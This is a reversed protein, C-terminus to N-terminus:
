SQHHRPRTASGKTQLRSGWRWICIVSKRVKTGPGKSQQGDDKAKGKGKSKKAEEERRKKERTEKRRRERMAARQQRREELLADKGGHEVAYRAGGRRLSVMRAHLKARLETIGEQPAMPVITPSDEDDSDAEDNESGSHESHLGDLPADVAM